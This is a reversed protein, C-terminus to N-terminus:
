SIRDILTQSVASCSRCPLLSPFLSLCPFSSIAHAAHQRATATSGGAMPSVGPTSAPLGGVGEVAVGHSTVTAHLRTVRLRSTIARFVLTTFVSPICHPLHRVWVDITHM